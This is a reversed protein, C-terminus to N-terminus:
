KTQKISLIVLRPCNRGQGVPRPLKRSLVCSSLHGGTVGKRDECPVRLLPGRSRSILEWGLRLRLGPLGLPLQGLSQPVPTLPLGPLQTQSSPLQLLGDLAEVGQRHGSLMEKSLHPQTQSHRKVRQTSSSILSPRQPRYTHKPALTSEQQDYPIEELM